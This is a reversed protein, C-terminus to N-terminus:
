ALGKRDERWGKFATARSDPPSFFFEPELGVPAHHRDHYSSIVTSALPLGGTWQTWLWGGTGPRNCLPPRVYYRAHGARGRGHLTKDHGEGGWRGEGKITTDDDHQRRRKTAVTKRTTVMRTATKNKEVEEDNDDDDGDQDVDVPVVVLFIAPDDSDEVATADASAFM